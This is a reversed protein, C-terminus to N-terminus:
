MLTGLLYPVFFISYSKLVDEFQYVMRGKRGACWRQIEEASPPDPYKHLVWAHTIALNLQRISRSCMCSTFANHFPLLLVKFHHGHYVMRYERAGTDGFPTPKINADMHVMIRVGLVACAALIEPERVALVAQSSNPENVDQLHTDTILEPHQELHDAVLCRLSTVTHDTQPEANTEREWWLLCHYFCDPSAGTEVAIAGISQGLTDEVTKWDSNLARQDQSDATGIDVNGETLSSSLSQSLSLSLSLSLLPPHWRHRSTLEPVRVLLCRQPPIWAVQAAPALAPHLPQPLLLMWPAPASPHQKRRAAITRCPTARTLSSLVCWSVRQYESIAAYMLLRNSYQDGWGCSSSAMLLPLVHLLLPLVARVLRWRNIPFCQCCPRSNREPQNTRPASKSRYDSLLMLITQFALPQVCGCVHILVFTPPNYPWLCLGLPVRAKCYRSLGLAILSPLALM